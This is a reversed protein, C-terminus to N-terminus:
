QRQQHTIQLFKKLDDFDVEDFSVQFNLYDMIGNEKLETVARKGLLNM